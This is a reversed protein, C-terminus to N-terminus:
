DFAGKFKKQLENKLVETCALGFCEIRFLNDGKYDALNFLRDVFFCDFNGRASNCDPCIWANAYPYKQVDTNVVNLKHYDLSFYGDHNLTKYQSPIPEDINVNYFALNAQYELLVDLVSKSVFYFQKWHGDFLCDGFKSGTNSLLVNFDSTPHWAFCNESKCNYRTIGTRIEEVKANGRVKRIEL